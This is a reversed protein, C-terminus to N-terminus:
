NQKPKGQQIHNLTDGNQTRFHVLKDSIFEPGNNVRIYEPLRREEKSQSLIRIIREAPLSTNVEIALCERISEDIINLIRIRSGCYLSYNMFDM